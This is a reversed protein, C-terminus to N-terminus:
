ESLLDYPKALQRTPYMSNGEGSRSVTSFIWSVLTMQAGATDCCAATATSSAPRAHTSSRSFDTASTRRM